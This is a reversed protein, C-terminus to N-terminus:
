IYFHVLDKSRFNGGWKLGFLGSISGAYEQYPFTIDIAKADPNGLISTITSHKSNLAPRVVLGVRDGRDWANRLQAQRKPDRFGSSVNGPNGLIANVLLFLGVKISFKKNLGWKERLWPIAQDLWNLYQPNKIDRRSIQAM